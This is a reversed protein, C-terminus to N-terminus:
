QLCTRDPIIKFNSWANYNLPCSAEITIRQKEDNNAFKCM